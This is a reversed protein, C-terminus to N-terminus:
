SKVMYPEDPPQPIYAGGPCLVHRWPSMTDDM